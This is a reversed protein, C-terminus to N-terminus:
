DLMTKITTDFPLEILIFKANASSSNKHAEALKLEAEKLSGQSIYMKALEWNRLYDEPENNYSAELKKQPDRPEEFMEMKLYQTKKSGQNGISYIKFGRIGKSKEEKKALAKPNVPEAVFIKALMQVAERFKKQIIYLQAHRFYIVKFHQPYKLALEEYKKSAEQHRGKKILVQALNLYAFLDYSSYPGALEIFMSDQSSVGLSIKSLEETFAIEFDEWEETPQLQNSLVKEEETHVKIAEKYYEIANKYQEFAAFINGWTFYLKTNRPDSALSKQM